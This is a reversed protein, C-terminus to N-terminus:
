LKQVSYVVDGKDVNFRFAPAALLKRKLDAENVGKIISSIISNFMTLTHVKGDRGGVAVRATAFKKCKSAKMVMGCKTCEAVIEDESRVKASCGMCGAYEDCYVVGDIEGEIVKKVVGSEQLDGEEVEAMEGIDEVDEIKCDGGVSLFNTGRFSRVSVGVLRYSRGEVMRGVDREWLVVRGCASSDGVVCDRKELEKGERNKVKELADVTKVKVTVTVRQSPTLSCLDNMEVVVPTEESVLEAGDFKKPLPQAKTVKGLVIESGGSRGCRVQCDVISIADKKTLSDNMPQRLSPEFSIVHVCKKGDSLQGSFYKVKEDKKSKKIPSLEAVVGHVIVSGGEKIDCVDFEDLKRKTAM